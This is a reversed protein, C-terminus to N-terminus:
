ITFYSIIYLLNWFTFSIPSSILRSRQSASLVGNFGMISSQLMMHKMYTLFNMVGIELFFTILSIRRLLKRSEWLWKLTM